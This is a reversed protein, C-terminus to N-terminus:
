LISKSVQFIHKRWPRISRLASTFSIHIPNFANKLFGIVLLNILASRGNYLAYQM